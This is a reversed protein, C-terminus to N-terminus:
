SRRQNTSHHNLAYVHDMMHATAERAELWEHNVVRAWTWKALVFLRENM